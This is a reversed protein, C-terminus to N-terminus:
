WNRAFGWVCFVLGLATMGAVYLAGLLPPGSTEPLTGGEYAKAVADGQEDLDIRANGDTDALLVTRRTEPQDEVEVVLSPRNEPVQVVEVPREVTPTEFYVPPRVVAVPPTDPNDPNPYSVVPPNGVPGDPRDPKDVPNDPNDPTETDPPTDVTTDEIVTTEEDGPTTEEMGTTEEIVTTEEDLITTEEVATPEGTCIPDEPHYQCYDPDDPETALVRQAVAFMALAAFLALFVAGMIKVRQRAEHM